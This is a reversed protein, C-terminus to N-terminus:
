GSGLVSLMQDPNYVVEGAHPHNHWVSRVSEMFM